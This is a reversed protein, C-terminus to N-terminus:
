SIQLSRHDRRCFTNVDESVLPPLLGDIEGIVEELDGLTTVNLGLMSHIVPLYYATNPFDVHCDKGNKEIAAALAKKAQDAISYAGKIAASAIIRSM